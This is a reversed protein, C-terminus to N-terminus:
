AAVAATATACFECSSRGMLWDVSVNWEDALTRWVEEPVPTEGREYRRIMSPDRRLLHAVDYTKWDRAQRAERLRNPQENV